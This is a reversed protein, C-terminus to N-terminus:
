ETAKKIAQEIQKACIHNDPNFRNYIELERKMFMLADLMEPAAAILKANAEAEGQKAQNTNIQCVSFLKNNQEEVTVLLSCPQKTVKWEGTTFKTEM